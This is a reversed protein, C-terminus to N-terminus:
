NDYVVADRRMLKSAYVLALVASAATTAALVLSELVPLAANAFGLQLLVQHGAVPAL